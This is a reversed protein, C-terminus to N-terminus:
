YNTTINLLTVKSYDIVAIEQCIKKASNVINELCESVEDSFTIEGCGRCELCPVNKVVIICGKNDATFTTTSKLKDDGFCSNCVTLVKKNKLEAKIFGLIMRKFVGYAQEISDYERNIGATDFYDWYTVKEATQYGNEDMWDTFDSLICEMFKVPGNIEDEFGLLTEIEFEYKQKEEDYVLCFEPLGDNYQTHPYAYIEKKM